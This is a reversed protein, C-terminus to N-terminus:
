ENRAQTEESPTEAPPEEDIPLRFCHIAGAAGHGAQPKLISAVLLDENVIAVKAGFGSTIPEKVSALMAIRSFRGNEAQKFVYASGQYGECGAGVLLTDGEFALHNGLSGLSDPFVQLQQKESWHGEPSRQFILVCGTTGNWRPTGVFITDGSFLLTRGFWEANKAERPLQTTRVWKGVADREYMDVREPQDSGEWSAVAIYSGNTATSYGFRNREHEFPPELTQEWQHTKKDRDFRFVEVGHNSHILLTDGGMSISQNLICTEPLDTLALNDLRKWGDDMKMYQYVDTQQGPMITKAILLDDTVFSNTGFTGPNVADKPADIRETMNWNKNDDQDFVLIRHAGGALLQDKSQFLQAGVFANARPEPDHIVGAETSYLDFPQPLVLPNEQQASVMTTGATSLLLALGLTQWSVSRHGPISFPHM